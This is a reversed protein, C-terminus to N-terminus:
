AEEECICYQRLDFISLKRLEPMQGERGVTVWVVDGRRQALPLPGGKGDEYVRWMGEEILVAEHLCKLLRGGAPANLLEEDTYDSM